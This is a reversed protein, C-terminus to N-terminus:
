KKHTSIEIQTELQEKEWEDLDIEHHDEKVEEEQNDEVQNEIFEKIEKAKESNNSSLQERLSSKNKDKKACCCIKWFAQCYYVPTTLCNKVGFAFDKVCECTSEKWQSTRKGWNTDRIQNKLLVVRTEILQKKINNKNQETTTLKVKLEKIRNELEELLKKDIDLSQKQRKLLLLNDLEKKNQQYNIEAEKLQTKLENKQEEIKENEVKVEKIKSELKIPKNESQSSIEENSEAKGTWSYSSKRYEIIADELKNIADIIEQIKNDEKNLDQTLKSRKEKLEEIDIEKNDDQDYIKLFEDIKKDLVKLSTNVAGEKLEDIKFQSLIGQLENYNDLFTDADALFEKWKSEKIELSKELRSVALESFPYIGLIGGGIASYDRFTLAAGAVAAGRGIFQTGYITWRHKWLEELSHLKSLESPSGDKKIGWKKLFQKINGRIVYLRELQIISAIMSNQKNKRWKDLNYHKDESKEEKDEEVCKSKDLEEMIKTSRYQYDSNCYLKKCSKPLHELGESLNTNAIYLEELKNLNELPKLSGELSSCDSVNM